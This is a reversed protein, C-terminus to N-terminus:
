EIDAEFHEEVYIDLIHVFLEEYEKPIAFQEDNNVRSQTPSILARPSLLEVMVNPLHDFNLDM